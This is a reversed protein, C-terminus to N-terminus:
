KARQILSEKAKRSLTKIAPERKLAMSRTFQPERYVLVVPLRTRTYRSAAGANHQEIRRELDNTVGTYLSGDACRLMYVFWQDALQKTLKLVALEKAKAEVEVTVSVAPAFLECMARKEIEFPRM